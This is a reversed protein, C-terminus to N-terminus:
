LCWIVSWWVPNIRFHVCMLLLLYARRPSLTSLWASRLSPAGPISITNPELLLLNGRCAIEAPMGAQM